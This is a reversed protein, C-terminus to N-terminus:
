FLNRVFSALVFIVVSMFSIGLAIILSANFAQDNVSLTTSNPIVLFWFLFTMAAIIFATLFDM